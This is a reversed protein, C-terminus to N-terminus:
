LHAGISDRQKKANSSPAIARLRRDRVRCAERRERACRRQGLRQSRQRSKKRTACRRRRVLMQYNAALTEEVDNPVIQLSQLTVVHARRVFFLEISPLLKEAFRCTTDLRSALAVRLHGGVETQ